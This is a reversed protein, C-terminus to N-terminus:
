TRRLTRGGRAKSPQRDLRFPLRLRRPSAEILDSPNQSNLTSAPTPRLGDGAPGTPRRQPPMPRSPESSCLLFVHFLQKGNHGGDDGSPEEGNRRGRIASSSNAEGLGKM